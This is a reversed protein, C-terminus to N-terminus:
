LTPAENFAQRLQDFGTKVDPTLYNSVEKVSNSVFNCVAHSVHNSSLYDARTPGKTSTSTRVENEGYDGEGFEDVLNMLKQM